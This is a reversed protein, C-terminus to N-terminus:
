AWISWRKTSSSSRSTARRAPSVLRQKPKGFHEQQCSLSPYWMLNQFLIIKRCRRQLATAWKSPSRQPVDRGRAMLLHQLVCVLVCIDCKVSPHSVRSQLFECISHFVLEQNQPSQLAIILDYRPGLLSSCRLKQSPRPTNLYNLIGFSPSTLVFVLTQILIGLLDFYICAKFSSVLYLETGTSVHLFLQLNPCRKAFDLVRRPGQTNINLAVDYRCLQM